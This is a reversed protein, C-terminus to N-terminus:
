SLRQSLNHAFEQVTSDAKKRILPQGFEGLKGLLTLDTEVVLETSEPGLGQLHMEM